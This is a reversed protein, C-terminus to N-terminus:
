YQKGPKSKTYTVDESTAGTYGLYAAGAAGAGMAFGFAAGADYLMFMQGRVDDAGQDIQAASVVGQGENTTESAITQNM